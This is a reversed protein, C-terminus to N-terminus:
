DALVWGVAKVATIEFQRRGASDGVARLSVTVHDVQEAQDLLMAAALGGREVYLDLDEALDPSSAKYNMWRLEDSFGHLYFGGPKLQVRMVEAEPVKGSLLDEWSESGRRAYADFDVKAGDPDVSVSLWRRGGGELDVQYNEYLMEGVTGVTMPFSGKIKETSGPGTAFFAEMVRGVRDPNRVWKLREAHTSAKTFNEVVAHPHPGTWVKALEPAATSIGAEERGKARMRGLLWLGVCAFGLLVLLAAGIAVERSVRGTSGETRDGSRRSRRSRRVRGVQGVSGARRVRQLDPLRPEGSQIFHRDAGKRVPPRSSSDDPTM